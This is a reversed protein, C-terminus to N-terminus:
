PKKYIEIIPGRYRNQFNIGFKMKLYYIINSICHIPNKYSINTPTFKAVLEYSERINNYFNIEKQYRNPEAFYRNYMSSSLIIYKIEPKDLKDSSFITKPFQSFFPTYGEFISNDTNIGNNICYILSTYRTDPFTFSISYTLSSLLQQSLYVIIVIIVLINKWKSEKRVNLFYGIAFSILFLPSIYMPLAWREWHLSLGSLIIWYFFGYFLLLFKVNKKRIIYFLGLFMFIYSLFNSFSYFSKSYFFLNGLWDLNDAGLHIPHAMDKISTMMNGFNIFLNPAFLFLFLLYITLLKLSYSIIKKITQILSGNIKKRHEIILSLFIIGLSLLGPYKEATNISCFITAFYLFYINQTNLFKLSFYIILLTFLTIPIDPTIYKSHVVFSPFFSFVFATPICINSDFEKAVKYAIIPVFSGLICIIVRANYYFFLPDNQFSRSFDVKFKIFSLINLYTFNILYLIQDPRDYQNSDFTKNKTMSYVPDIIASEDPHTLLPFGFKLGIRRIVFSITFIFLLFLVEKHKLLFFKSKKFIIKLQPFKNNITQFNM